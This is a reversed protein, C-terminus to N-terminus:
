GLGLALIIDHYHHITEGLKGMEKGDGGGMCNCMYSIQKELVDKPQM